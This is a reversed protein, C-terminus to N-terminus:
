HSSTPRQILDLFIKSKDEETFTEDEACILPDYWSIKQKAWEVWKTFEETNLGNENAHSEVQFLYDRMINAQHLRNALIYLSKFDSLEKEKRARVEQKIRLKEAEEERRLEAELHWEHWQRAEAELKEIISDIKDEIPKKGDSVTKLEHNGIQFTFKGTPKLERSGYSGTPKETTKSIERLRMGIGEGYIVAVTGNWNFSIDHGRSRLIKIVTDFIRLARSLNSYQVDISLISKGQLIRVSGAWPREKYAEFYEKADRTLKDPNTLRLPVKFLPETNCEESSERTDRIIDPDGPEKQYLDVHDEGSYELPLSIIESTIGWKLKSWYGGSPIPIELNHYIKRLDDYKVALRKSISTLPEKWAMEYLEKRTLTIKKM